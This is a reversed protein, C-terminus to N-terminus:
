HIQSAANMVRNCGSINLLLLICFIGFILFFLGRKKVQFMTVSLLAYIVWGIIWAGNMWGAIAKDEGNPLCAILGVPFFPAALISQPNTVLCVLIVFGWAGLFFRLKVSASLPDSFKPENRDQFPLQDPEKWVSFKTGCEHCVEAEDSNM